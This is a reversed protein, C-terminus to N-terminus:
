AVTITDPMFGAAVGTIGEFELPTVTRVILESDDPISSGDHLHIYGSEVDQILYWKGVVPKDKTGSMANNIRIWNGTVIPAM